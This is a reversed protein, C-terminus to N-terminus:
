YVYQKVHTLMDLTRNKCFEKALWDELLLLFYHNTVVIDRLFLSSHCNPNYIRVLWLFLQRLDYM